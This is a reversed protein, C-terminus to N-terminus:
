KRRKKYLESAKFLIEREESTLSEQGHKSVKELVQDLKAELHEDVGKPRPLSEVAAGVPEAPEEEPEAPVVRLAPRARAAGRRGGPILRGFRFGTQFYLVGFLAGGLHVWYAVRGGGGGLAGLADLGVYAIVLVWIPMPIVFFLLVQQRPYHFAFLVMVATVAGSAGISPTPPAVGALQALLYVAQAFVGGILYIALFEGPGYVEEMRSGAWYLILMNCFIHFIGIHLFLPTALRWVEGSLVRGPIYAGAEVLPSTGPGPRGTVAQAVFVAVTIGILWVTVGRRGWSDFFGGAEDRYYDRDHIGM